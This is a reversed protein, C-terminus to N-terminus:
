KHVMRFKEYNLVEASLKSLQKQTKEYKRKNANSPKAQLYDCLQMLSIVEAYVIRFQTDSNIVGKAKVGVSVKAIKQASSVLTQVTSMSDIDLNNTM